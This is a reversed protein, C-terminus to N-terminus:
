VLNRPTVTSERREEGWGETLEILEVELVYGQGM